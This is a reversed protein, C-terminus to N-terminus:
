GQKDHNRKVKQHEIMVQLPVDLGSEIAKEVESFHDVSSLDPLESYFEVLGYIYGIPHGTEIAEKKRQLEERACTKRCSIRMQKEKEFEDRTMQWPQRGRLKETM